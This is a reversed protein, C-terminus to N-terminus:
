AESEDPEEEKDEGKNKLRNKYVVTTGSIIDHWGKRKKNMEVWVFGFGLPIASVIYGIFRLIFQKTTPKEFTKADVITMGFLMKMPTASYFHWFTIVIIASIIIYIGSIFEMRTIVGSENVVQFYQNFINLVDDWSETTEKPRIAQINEKLDEENITFFMRAFIDLIPATAVSLVTSDILGAVMRPFFGAYKKYQEKSEKTKRLNFLMKEINKRYTLTYHTNKVIYSVFVVFIDSLGFFFL